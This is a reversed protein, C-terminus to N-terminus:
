VSCWPFIHWFEDVVKQTIRSLSLCVFLRGFASYFMDKTTCTSYCLLLTVPNPASM